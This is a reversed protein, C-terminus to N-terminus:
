DNKDEKIRDSLFYFLTMLIIMGVFIGITFVGLLHFAYTQMPILTFNHEKILSIILLGIFFGIIRGIWRRM